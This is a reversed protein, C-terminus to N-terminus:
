IVPVFFAKTQNYYYSCNVVSMILIIFLLLLLDYYYCFNALVKPRSPRLIYYSCFIIFVKFYNPRWM